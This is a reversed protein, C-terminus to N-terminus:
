LVLWLGGLSCWVMKHYMVFWRTGEECSIDVNLWLRFLRREVLSFVNSLYRVMIGVFTELSYIRRRRLFQGFVNEVSKM